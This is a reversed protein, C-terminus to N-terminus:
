KRKGAPKKAQTSAAPRSPKTNTKSAGKSKDKNAM